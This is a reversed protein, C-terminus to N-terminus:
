AISFDHKKWVEATLEFGDANEIDDKYAPDCGEVTFPSIIDGPEPVVVDVVYVVL